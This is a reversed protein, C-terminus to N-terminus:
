FKEPIEQRGTKASLFIADLVSMNGFSDELSLVQDRNELIAKAFLDGQVTYQNTAEFEIMEINEGYLNTGDDIFLRSPTDVPINFPIEVEIRGTTGLFQMRQYPVLQTSCTFTAHGGEFRLMGSALRDIGTEGDKEILGAVSEPEADFIFRATNVCYCGIDLLAGGGLELKNRINSKDDNFYSFFGTIAQLRGIRGARVLDRVALWTPHTLVMFAEQIRVGYRNRIDILSRIEAANLGIPKECLVHKGAEASKRAWELHLNNPLPIYVADLEPDALLDEYSGYAKGIDLDAACSKAKVTDRSAIAAIECYEAAQMAPIVKKVAINATGLIGFRVRKRM